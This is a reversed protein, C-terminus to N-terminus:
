IGLVARQQFIVIVVDVAKRGVMSSACDLPRRQLRPQRGGTPVEAAPALADGPLCNSSTRCTGGLREDHLCCGECTQIRAVAPMTELAVALALLCGFSISSRAFLSVELKSGDMQPSKKRV